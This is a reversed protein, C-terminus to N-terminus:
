KSKHVVFRAPSRVNETEFIELTIGFVQVPSTNIYGRESNVGLVTHRLSGLYLCGGIGPGVHM